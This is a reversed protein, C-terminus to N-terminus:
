GPVQDQNAKEAQQEDLEGRSSAPSLRAATWFM